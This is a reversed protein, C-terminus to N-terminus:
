KSNLYNEIIKEYNEVSFSEMKFIQTLIPDFNVNKLELLNDKCYNWMNVHVHRTSKLNRAIEEDETRGFTEVIGGPKTDGFYGKLVGSLYFSYGTVYLSKPSHSLIDLLAVFGTTPRCDIKKSINSFFNCDVISTNIKYMDQLELLTLYISKNKINLENSSAIGKMDSKPVTRIHKVKSHAIKKSNLVGGNICDGLLNNYLVDTKKGIINDYNDVLDFGRNIRVITDSNEIANKTKEKLNTLYNAPGIVVVNKDKFYEKM